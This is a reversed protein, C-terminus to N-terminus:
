VNVLSERHVFVGRMQFSVPTGAYVCAKLSELDTTWWGHDLFRSPKTTWPPSAVGGTVALWEALGGLFADWHEDGTAPPEAAVMQERAEPPRGLVRTALEAAMRIIDDPRNEALAERIAHALGVIGAAHDSPADLTLRAGTAEAVRALTEVTPHLQGKEIRHVTSTALGAARATERLSLGSRERIRRVFSGVDM